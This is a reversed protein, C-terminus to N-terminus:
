GMVFIVANETFDNWYCHRWHYYTNAYGGASNFPTTSTYDFQENIGMADVDYLVGVLHDITVNAGADICQGTTVDLYTPKCIVQDEYGARPSQWFNVGEYGGIDLYEPNFLTSYVNAKVDVFLPEYMIMRQKEKPTHRMIDPYGTLNFHFMNTRDTMANSYKKITAAFFKAFDELYTSTLDATTYSTGYKTNYAATLDIVQAPSATLGTVMNCLCLRTEGEIQTEIDNSFEVLANDIFQAFQAESEFAQALQDRYRTFHRQLKKTGYFNLELAKFNKIKYMDISNGDALQTPNIDTNYDESEEADLPLNVIKRIMAGWRQDTAGLISLKRNYARSSFITRALVTSIENLVNERGTRLLHEGVALFTTTDVAQLANRGTIQKSIENVIAYVDTPTLPNAM